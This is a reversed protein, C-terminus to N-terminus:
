VIEASRDPRGSRRDKVGARTSLLYVVRYSLRNFAWRHSDLARLIRALVKIVWPWALSSTMTYLLMDVLTKSVGPETMRVTPIRRCEPAKELLLGQGHYAAMYLKRSFGVVDQAVEQHLAHAGRTLVIRAGHDRTVRHGFEIDEAGYHVFDPDWGGCAEFLDRSMAMNMCVVRWPELSESGSGNDNHHWGQKFRYYNSRAVWGDPFDVPGCSIVDNRGSVGALHASVWRPPLRMDDDAFMVVDSRALSAGVNRKAALSNVTLHYRADLGQATVREVVDLASEAAPSDIVLVEIPGPLDVQRLLDGLLEQLGDHRNHTPIVVTAVPPTILYGPAPMPHQMLAYSRDHM